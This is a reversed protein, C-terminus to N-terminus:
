AKSNEGTLSTNGAIILLVVNVLLIKIFQM